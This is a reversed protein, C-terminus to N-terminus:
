SPHCVVVGATMPVVRMPSPAREDYLIIIIIGITIM